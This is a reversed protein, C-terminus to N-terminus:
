SLSPYPVTHRVTEWSGRENQLPQAGGNFTTNVGPITRRNILSAGGKRSQLQKTLHTPPSQDSPLQAAVVVIRVTHSYNRLLPDHGARRDHGNGTETIILLWWCFTAFVTVTRAQQTPLRGQSIYLNKSNKSKVM